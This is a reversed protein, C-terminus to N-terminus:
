IDNLQLFEVAIGGCFLNNMSSEYSRMSSLQRLTLLLKALRTISQIHITTTMSEQQTTQFKNFNQMMKMNINHREYTSLIYLTLRNLTLESNLQLKHSDNENTALEPRCLIMIELLSLEMLDASLDRTANIVELLHRDGCVEEIAQSVDIPWHSAKLIFLEMWVHRLIQNRQQQCIIQLCDNCQAQKLCTLLIQALMERSRKEEDHSKMVIKSMRKHPSLKRPGRERQVSTINMKVALCKQLRCFPCWNRRIKDIICNGNGGKNLISHLFNL